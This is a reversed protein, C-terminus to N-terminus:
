ILAKNTEDHKARRNDVLDLKPKDEEEKVHALKM